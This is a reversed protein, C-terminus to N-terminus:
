KSSLFSFTKGRVIDFLYLYFRDAFNSGKKIMADHALQYDCINVTPVPGLWFTHVDGYKKKWERLVAVVGKHKITGLILQHLNGILPLPVPGLSIKKWIILFTGPPLHRTKSYMSFYLYAVLAGLLLWFLM